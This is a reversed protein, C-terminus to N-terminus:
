REPEMGRDQDVQRSRERTRETSQGRDQEPELLAIYHAVDRHLQEVEHTHQRRARDIQTQLARREDLQREILAQKEAEDREHCQRAELENQRKVKAHKGTVRDWVGRFGRNVRQARERMEAIRRKEQTEYLEVRQERHSQVLKSKRAKLGSANFRFAADAEEIYGRVMPTMKATLAEKVRSLSPLTQPDGLKATVEKTRLGTWRSIAYIEGRFDMAVHARRDGRALIYGREELAKAFAQKSDSVAWCEQFMAKLTKPNHGQRKAQEWQARTFNLPNREQSNMLGRPMKWGHEIYLERSIDKLKLKTHSLNVAKMQEADIRSWVCHAHRRGEKEHFVIARPQGDLGLKKEIREIADEFVAVPVNEPAPPNLSLSFLFQKCKTGKSLAYAEHLAGHLNESVFGRLEHVEVHENEVMKMLHQALQKAGGRQNGKLIM